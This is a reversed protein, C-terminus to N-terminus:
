SQSRVLLFALWENDRALYYSAQFILMVGLLAATAGLRFQWRMRSIDAETVIRPISVLVPIKTFARLDEVSHFSDDFQEALMVTGTGASRAASKGRIRVLVMGLGAILFIAATLATGRIWSPERADHRASFPSPM